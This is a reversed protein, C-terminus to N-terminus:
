SPARTPWKGWKKNMDEASILVFSKDNPAPSSAVGMEELIKRVDVSPSSTIQLRLGYPEHLTDTAWGTAASYDVLRQQDASSLGDRLKVRVDIFYSKALTERDMGTTVTASEVGPENEVADRADLPSLASSSACGNMSLLMAGALVIAPVILAM